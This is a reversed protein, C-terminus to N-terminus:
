GVVRRAGAWPAPYSGVSQMVVGVRTNRAHVMMGNGVYMGVHHVPHYYFILDGPQLESRSVAKGLTSQTRSSHPLSIGATRYSALMLGSCDFTSPGDTAWVYRSGVKSIAYASAARGAASGGTGITASSDAPAAVSDASDASDLASREQTSLSNILKKQEVVKAKAKATAAAAAKASETAKAAEADAALKLDALNAANSQYQQLVDNMNEDVKAVTSIQQLFSDPDGSVFIQTTTDVGADQFSARAIAAVQARLAAVKAEQAVVDAQLAKAKAAAAEQADKAQSYQEELDGLEEELANLKSTASSVSQTPTPTAQAVGPTGFLLLSGVTASAALGSLIKHGRSVM